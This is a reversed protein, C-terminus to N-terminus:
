LNAFKATRLSEREFLLLLRSAISQRSRHGHEGGTDGPLRFATHLGFHSLAGTDQETGVRSDGQKFVLVEDPRMDPVYLWRHALGAPKAPFVRTGDPAQPLLWSGCYGVSVPCLARIGPTLM